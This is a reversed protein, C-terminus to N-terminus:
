PFDEINSCDQNSPNVESVFANTSGTFLLGVSRSAANNHLQAASFTVPYVTSYSFGAVYINDSSDIALGAPVDLEDGSLLTELPIPDSKSNPDLEFIVVAALPFLASPGVNVGIQYCSTPNNPGPFPVFGPQTAPVLSAAAGAVWIHNEADVKIGTAADGYPVQVKLFPFPGVASGVGGVYTSFLLSGSGTFESVFMNSAGAVTIGAKRQAAPNANNNAQIPNKTPFGPALGEYSYAVGTLWVNGSHDVTIATALDGQRVRPDGAGGLYTSWILSAGASLSPDIHAVFANSLDPKGRNVPQFANKTPFSTKGRSFTLGTIYATGDSGVVLGTAAEGGKVVGGGGLFTGYSVSVNPDAATAIGTLVLLFAASNKTKDPNTPQFGNATAPFDAQRNKKKGTTANSRTSGAIYAACANMCGPKLAVRSPV